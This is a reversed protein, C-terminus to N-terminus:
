DIQPWETLKKDDERLIEIEAEIEQLTQTPKPYHGDYYYLKIM